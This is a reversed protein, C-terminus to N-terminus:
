DQLEGNRTETEANELCARCVCRRYKARIVVRTKESVKVQSCWCGRLGIECAFSQGCAECLRPIRLLPLSLNLRRFLRM